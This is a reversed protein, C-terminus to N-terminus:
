YIFDLFYLNKCILASAPPALTFAVGNALRNTAFSVWDETKTGEIIYISLFHVQTTGKYQVPIFYRPRVPPPRWRGDPGGEAEARPGVSCPTPYGAYFRWRLPCLSDILQIIPLTSFIGKSLQFGLIAIFSYVPNSM